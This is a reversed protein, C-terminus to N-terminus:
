EAAISCGSWKAPRENDEPSATPKTASSAVPLFVIGLVAIAQRM